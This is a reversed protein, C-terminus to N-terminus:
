SAMREPVLTGEEESTADETQRRRKGPILLLLMALISSGIPATGWWLGQWPPPKVGFVMPHAPPVGEKSWVTIAGNELQDVQRWGAFHLLPYYYPEHVFVWKLGYRNAHRLIAQLAELGPTGFFKSNNLEGGGFKTLEPLRRASYWEGDVTDAHTEMSLRSLKNGFGLVIYRFQDHGGRDLWQAVPETTISYNDVPRFTSWAVAAACTLAALLGVPVVARMRFRAILDAVLSGVIPLCLLTAWYSFREFTLVYYARGLLWGGLPTTGGLGIILCFWFGIMLPRLRPVRSGRVIIFPIALILAGYPIVFYNLGWFPTLLYSARSPHHIPMQTIRYSFLAIWYPLLVLAIAAGASFLMAITRGIVAGTTTKQEGKDREMIALAVLPLTFFATGFIVIVDHAACAAAFLVVAKIFPRWGGYRLWEYLFPLALVYLAAEWTTGLQGANYILFSESGLLVVGLAAFSAARPTVWICAFRYMGIALLCIAIFQVLMYSFTLGLIWSFVAIWQQPLPPYTTQSFGTFWKTNWPNFWHHLYHAAFFIHFNTDYSKLPLEMLLLPLHVVAATLLIFSM